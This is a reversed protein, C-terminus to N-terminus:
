ALIIDRPLPHPGSQLGREDIKNGISLAIISVFGPSQGIFLSSSKTAPFGLVSPDVHKSIGVVKNNKPKDEKIWGDAYVEKPWFERDGFKNTCEEKYINVIDERRPDVRIKSTITSRGDVGKKIITTMHTDKYNDCFDLGKKIQNHNSSRSGRHIDQMGIFEPEKQM